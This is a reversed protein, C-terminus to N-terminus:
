SCRCAPATPSSSPTTCRDAARAADLDQRRDRQGRDGRGDDKCATSRRRSSTRPCASSPSATSSCAARRRPVGRLDDRRPGPQVLEGAATLGAPGSGVVAVRKGTPPHVTHPLEDRHAMAWDAVFRELYRHGRAAGKKGRLCMGECQSEQPCVRGTVCPLANDDLLVGRRGRLDGEAVLDIFHPINVRVPCGDICQPNKCQLCREAEAAALLETFGLNVESFTRRASTRRGARADRPPRHGDARPPQPQPRETMPVAGQASTSPWGPSAQLAARGNSGASRSSRRPLDDPPGGATAFDVQHADFEPGDVCAYHTEGGVTVRCGGCMGPATSWSRTSRCSRRCATATRSSRVGGADHAGPGGRVRRGRRRRRARRAARRHRLRARGYSGDDTCM